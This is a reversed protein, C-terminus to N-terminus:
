TEDSPDFTPTFPRASYRRQSLDAIEVTGRVKFIEPWDFVVAESLSLTSSSLMEIDAGNSM